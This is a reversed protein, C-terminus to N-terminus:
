FYGVTDPQQLFNLIKTAWSTVQFSFKVNELNVTQFMKRNSEQQIMHLYTKFKQPVAVKRVWFKKNFIIRRTKCVVTKRVNKLIAM